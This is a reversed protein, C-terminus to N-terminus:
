EKTGKEDTFTWVGDRKGGKYAGGENAKAIDTEEELAPEIEQEVIEAERKNEQQLKDKIQQKKIRQEWKDKLNQPIENKAQVVPKTKQKIIKPEEIVPAAKKEVIKPEEIVPEAVQEVIKIEKKVNPKSCSIVLLLAFFLLSQKKM